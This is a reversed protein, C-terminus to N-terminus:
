NKLYVTSVGTGDHAIREISFNKAGIAVQNRTKVGALDSTKALFQPVNSEINQEFLSVRDTGEDFIVNISRTSADPLTIVAEVAFEAISFFKDLDETFAM